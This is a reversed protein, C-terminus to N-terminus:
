AAAPLVRVRVHDEVREVAVVDWPTVPAGSREAALIQTGIPVAILGPDGPYALAITRIPTVGQLEGGAPRADAQPTIWIGRAPILRGDPGPPVVTVDIALVEFNIDRAILRLPGLDM